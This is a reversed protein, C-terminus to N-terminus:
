STVEAAQQARWSKADRVLAEFEAETCDWQYEPDGIQTMAALQSALSEVEATLREMDWTREAPGYFYKPDMGPWYDGGHGTDFGVWGDADVGYTLGGHISVTRNIQDYTASRAVHGEPLRVYGNVFGINSDVMACDLGAHSWRRRADRDSM